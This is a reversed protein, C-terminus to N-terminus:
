NIQLAKATPKQYTTTKFVSELELGQKHALERLGEEATGVLEEDSMKTLNIHFDQRDGIKELYAVEDEIYKNARAWEYIPTGPLPLLFGVSPYINCEECVKLTMKISEPTEQPYGFIVSTLPVVGGAWLAKAQVIFQEVSMRKNIARLIEPSANELSFSISECGIDRLERILGIHEKRFIGGRSIARWGIKFDLAGIRAALSKVVKINPLTLEDWFCIFDCNYRYHLREIEKIILNESYRRYKEGKFVHYCFTCSYPCGRASNLPFSLVNDRSFCNANVKGYENYKDLDFIDWNPFDLANIDTVVARKDTFVIEDGSKFAVGKVDALRGKRELVGLLKVMTIDAEGLVAIDVKTNHLLSEPISTAVSNGAIVTCRPNVNKAIDAIQKVFRYGTVICGLACIDFESHGLIEELGEMSMDNIDMDILEFGFGAKEVATMVYAVGVPLLRRKANPRLSPNIFIIKM